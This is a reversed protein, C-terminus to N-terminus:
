IKLIYQFSFMLSFDAYGDITYVPDGEDDGLEIKGVFDPLQVNMLVEAVKALWEGALVEASNQVDDKPLAEVLVSVQFRQTRKATKPVIGSITLPKKPIILCAPLKQTLDQGKLLLLQPNGVWVFGLVQTKIIECIQPYWGYPNRM